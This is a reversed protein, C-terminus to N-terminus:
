AYRGGAIATIDTQKGTPTIGIERRSTTISIVRRSTTVGIQMRSQTTGIQRIIAKISLQRTIDLQKRRSTGIQWSPATIIIQRRSAQHKSNHGDVEKKGTQKKISM